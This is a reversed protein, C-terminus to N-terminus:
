IHGDCLENLITEVRQNSKQNREELIAERVSDSLDLDSIAEEPNNMLQKYFGPEEYTKTLLESLGQHEEATLKANVPKYDPRNERIEGSRAQNRMEEGWKEEPLSIGGSMEKDSDDGPVVLTTGLFEETDYKDLDRIPINLIASSTYCNKSMRVIYIMKDPGFQEALYQKADEVTADSDLSFRGFLWGIFSLRPSLELREQLAKTFNYQVVGGQAPDIGLDSYISDVASIGPLLEVNLGWENEGLHKVAYPTWAWINPHGVSLYTVLGDTEKAKELPCLIMDHYTSYRTENNESDYINSFDILEADLNDALYEIAVTDNLNSIVVESDQLLWWAELSMQHLKKIGSGVVALDPYGTQPDMGGIFACVYM